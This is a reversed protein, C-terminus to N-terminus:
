GRSPVVGGKTMWTAISTSHFARNKGSKRERLICKTFDRHEQEFTNRCHKSLSCSAAFTPITNISYTEYCTSGNIEHLRYIRDINRIRALLPNVPNPRHKSLFQSLLSCYLQATWVRTSTMPNGSGGTNRTLASTSWPSESLYDLVNFRKGPTVSRRCALGSALCAVCACSGTGAVRLVWEATNWMRQILDPLKKSTAWVFVNMILKREFTSVLRCYEDEGSGIPWSFTFTGLSILDIIPIWYNWAPQSWNRPFTGSVARCTPMSRQLTPHMPAHGNWWPHRWRSASPRATTQKNWRSNITLTFTAMCSCLTSHAWNRNIECQRLKCVKSPYYHTILLM